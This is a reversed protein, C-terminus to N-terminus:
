APRFREAGVHRGDVLLDGADPRDPRGVDRHGDDHPWRRVTREGDAALHLGDRKRRRALVHVHCRGRQLPVRIDGLHEVDAVAAHQRSLDGATRHVHVDARRLHQRELRDARGDGDDRGRDGEPLPLRRSRGHPARGGRVCLGQAQDAVLRHRLRRSLTCPGVPELTGGGGGTVYTVPLGPAAPLNREYAHMHGNFVMQVGNRALLGELNANGDLYTDSGETPSDAHFPYHSFAFKLQSPHSQLDNVLWTYEPTGPAFHAAADNAYPTATGKNTDGWASDLMYFRAPGADFAYWESAYNASSTGNVCCYVDNQYRGGSTSVARAQTWTTIDTHTPGSLGHNGAAPFLPTSSGAVPWGGAGFIASTGAGVQQLDGYNTQSGNPYGNDGVTVAFRAGSAAIRAILNTQDPSTGDSNVQGWDGLVDFSFPDSSGAAAQSTFRPAGGTGLLDVAGLFPRYCYTGAAPLDVSATWQYEKVAGVTISTRTTTAKTTPTCNGAGDVAAYKVTATTASRDTAFNIAVHDGVLDTLYPARTM